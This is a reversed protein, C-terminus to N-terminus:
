GSEAYTNNLRGLKESLDVVKYISHEGESKASEKAKDIFAQLEQTKRVEFAKLVPRLHEFGGLCAQLAESVQLHIQVGLMQEIFM